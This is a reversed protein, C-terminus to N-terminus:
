SVESGARRELYAALRDGGAPVAVYNPFDNVEIVLPGDPGPVCDVGYLELGFLEGCRRALGELEPTVPVLNPAPAAPDKLLMGCRPVLAAVEVAWVEEGIVYLKLDRERGPLYRQILAAGEGWWTWSLAESTDATVLGRGNDGCIPKIVVPYATPPLLSALIAPEGLFTPPTPIAAAALAVAMAAKNVVGAIAQSSNIVPLGCAQAWGVLSLLQPSRGRAVVLDVGEMWSPDGLRHGSRGLDVVAVQHGRERLASCLGSPQDQTLYRREVLVLIRKRM